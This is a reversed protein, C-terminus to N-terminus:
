GFCLAARRAPGERGIHTLCYGGQLKTDLALLSRLDIFADSGSISTAAFAVRRRNVTSYLRVIRRSASAHRVGPATPAGRRRSPSYEECRVVHRAARSRPSNAPAALFRPGVRCTASGRSLRM